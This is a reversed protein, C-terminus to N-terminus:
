DSKNKEGLWAELVEIQQLVSTKSTGGVTQYQEISNEYNWVKAVDADFKQSYVLPYHVSIQCHKKFFIM